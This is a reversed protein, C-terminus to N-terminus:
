GDFLIEVMVTAQRERRVFRVTLDIVSFRLTRVAAFVAYTCVSIASALNHLARRQQVNAWRRGAIGRFHLGAVFRVGAISM